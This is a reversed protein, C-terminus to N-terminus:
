IFRLSFIILYFTWAPIELKMLFAFLLMSLGLIVFNLAIFHRRKMFKTIRSINLSALIYSVNYTAMIPGMLRPEYGKKEMEIPLFPAFLSFCINVIISLNFIFVYFGFVQWKEKVIFKELNAQTQHFMFTSGRINSATCGALDFMLGLTQRPKEYEVSNLPSEEQQNSATSYQM